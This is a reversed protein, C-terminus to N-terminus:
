NLCGIRKTSPKMLQCWQGNYNYGKAHDGTGGHAKSAKISSKAKVVSTDAFPEENRALDNSPTLIFQCFSIQL